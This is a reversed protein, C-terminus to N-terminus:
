PLHPATHHLQKRWIKRLLYPLYPQPVLSNAIWRHRAAENRRCLHGEHFTGTTPHPEFVWGHPFPFGSLNQSEKRLCTPLKRTHIIKNPFSQLTYYLVHIWCTAQLFEVSGLDIIIEPYQFWPLLPCDADSKSDIGLVTRCTRDCSTKPIESIWWSLPFIRM